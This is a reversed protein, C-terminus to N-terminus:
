SEDSLEEPPATMRRASEAWADVHETKDRSASETPQFFRRIRFTMLLGILMIFLLIALL